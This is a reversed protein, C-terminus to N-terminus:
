KEIKDRLSDGLINFTSVTVLIALGPYIMLWNAVGIYSRGENLMLGWEPTPAVAGFGLFSLSAFELMLTGIDSTATILMTPIINPLIYHIIINHKKIGTVVANQIYGQNKMSIVLSRSLRAYKPWTVLAIALICNTMGSGLIAAVAIALVVGPFALMINSLTMIVKDVIGGFYGSIMGLSTGVIFVILILLFTALVSTRAGYIVRAFVDRGLVDTGWIHNSDPALLSSTMNTEFPDITTFVSPFLCIILIIIAAFLSISMVKNEKIFQLPKM